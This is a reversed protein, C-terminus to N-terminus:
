YTKSLLKTLSNKLGEQFNELCNWLWRTSGTLIKILITNACFNMQSKLVLYNCNWSSQQCFFWLKDRLLLSIIISNYSGRTALINVQDMSNKWCSKQWITKVRWGFYLWEWTDRQQFKLDKTAWFWHNLSKLSDSERNSLLLLVNIFSKEVYIFTGNRSVLATVYM